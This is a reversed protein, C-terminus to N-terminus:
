MLFVNSLFIKWKSLKVPYGVFSVLRKIMNEKWEYALGYEVMHKNIREMTEYFYENYLIQRTIKGRYTEPTEYFVFLGTKM